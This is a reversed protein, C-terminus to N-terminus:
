RPIAEPQLANLFDTSRIEDILYSNELGFENSKGKWKERTIMKDVSLSIVKLNDPLQLEKLNKFGEICPACWTAWFDLLYYEAPNLMLIDQLSYANFSRDLLALEKLPQVLQDGKVAAINKTIVKKQGQYLETTQLWEWTTEYYPSIVNEPQLLYKYAGKSIFNLYQKSFKQTNLNEYDLLAIHNTVYKHYFNTITLGDIIPSHAKKAYAEVRIDFPDVQQLIDFYFLNNLQNLLVSNKTFGKKKYYTHVSDLRQSLNIQSYTHPDNVKLAEFNKSLVGTYYSAVLEDLEANSKMDLINLDHNKYEFNLESISPDLLFHYPKSKFSNDILKVSMFVIQQNESVRPVSKVVTAESEEDNRFELFLYGLSDSLNLGTRGKGYFKVSIKLSSAVNDQTSPKEEYESMRKLQGKCELAFLMMSM